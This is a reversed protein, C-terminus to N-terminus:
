WDQAEVEMIGKDRDLKATQILKRRHKEQEDPLSDPSIKALVKLAQVPRQAHILIQALRLRVTAAQETFRGLYEVMYPISEAWAKQAHLGGILGLM